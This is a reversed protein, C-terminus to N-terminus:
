SAAELAAVLAAAETDYTPLVLAAFTAKGSENLWAGVGWKKAANQYTCVMPWDGPAREPECAERVLALVCGLTAPDRLDPFWWECPHLTRTTIYSGGLGVSKDYPKAYEIKSDDLLVRVIRMDSWTDAWWRPACMALMGPMWRWGACAVARRGLEIWQQQEETM